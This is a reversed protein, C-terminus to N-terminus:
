TGIKGVVLRFGLDDYRFSPVSWFRYATRVYRARLDWSGGRFVRDRAEASAVLRFGLNGACLGSENFGRYASRCNGANNYWSGGCVVSM